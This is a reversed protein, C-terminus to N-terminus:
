QIGNSSAFAALRLPPTAYSKNLASLIVCRGGGSVLGGNTIQYTMAPAQNGISHYPATAGQWSSQTWGVADVGSGSIGGGTPMGSLSEYAILQASALSASALLTAIWHM